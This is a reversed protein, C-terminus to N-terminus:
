GKVISIILNTASLIILIYALIEIRKEERM